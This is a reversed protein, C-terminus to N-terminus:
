LKLLKNALDSLVNELKLIHNNSLNNHHAKITLQNLIVGIKRLEMRLNKTDKTPKKKVLIGLEKYASNRLFETLNLSNYNAIQTLDNKERKSFRITVKETKKDELDQLFPRGGKNFSQKKKKM